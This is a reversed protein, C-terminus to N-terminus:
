GDKTKIAVASELWHAKGVVKDDATWTAYNHYAVWIENGTKEVKIFDFKNERKTNGNTKLEKAQYNRISDNNWLM